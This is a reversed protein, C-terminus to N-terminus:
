VHDGLGFSVLFNLDVETVSLVSYSKIQFLCKVKEILWSHLTFNIIVTETYLNAIEELNEYYENGCKWKVDM